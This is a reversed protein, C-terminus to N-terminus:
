GLPEPAAVVPESEVLDQLCHDYRAFAAPSGGVIEIGVAAFPRAGREGPQYEVTTWRARGVVEIPTEQGQPYIQLLLRTGVDPPRTCRLRLGRRSLNTASDDENGLYCIEHTIPDRVADITMTGVRLATATRTDRRRNPERESEGVREEASTNADGANM